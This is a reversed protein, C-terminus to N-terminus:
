RRAAPPAPTGGGAPEARGHTNRAGPHTQPSLPTHCRRPQAATGGARDRTRTRRRPAHSTHRTAPTTRAGGGGAEGAQKRAHAQGWGGPALRTPHPTPNTRPRHLPDGGTLLTAPTGQAHTHTHTKEGGEGGGPGGGGLGSTGWWAKGRAHGGSSTAARRTAHTDGDRGAATQAGNGGPQPLCRPPLPPPPPLLLHCWWSGSGLAAPQPHPNPLPAGPSRCQHVRTNSPAAALPDRAAGPTPVCARRGPPLPPPHPPLRRSGKATGVPPCRGVRSWEM